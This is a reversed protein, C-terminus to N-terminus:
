DVPIIEGPRGLIVDGREVEQIPGDIEQGNRIVRADRAQLGILKSIALRTQGKARNEFSKGLLILTIVVAATEYYVEAKLGQNIFFDPFVTAFLSYFFAASTGLAILTDMTANRRQLAKWAGTYFGYGCWFQVPTTLALQLWPNHLWAPIFSLELGTMMPLSGVILLASIAGGVIVKCIFDRSKAERSAKEEDEGTIMELEQLPTASFGAADVADQIKKITAQQPNYKITAQEAGFNVNCESVGIVSSIIEEVSSACSACSMGKLKLTLIDM